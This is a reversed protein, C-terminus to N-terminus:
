GPSVRHIAGTPILFVNARSAKPLTAELYLPKEIFPRLGGTQDINVEVGQPRSEGALDVGALVGGQELTQSADHFREKGREVIGPLPFRAIM